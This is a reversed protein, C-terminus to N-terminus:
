IFESSIVIGSLSSFSINGSQHQLNISKPIKPTSKMLFQWNGSGLVEISISLRDSWSYNESNPILKVVFPLFHPESPLTQIHRGKGGLAFALLGRWPCSQALMSCSFQNGGWERSKVGLVQSFCLRNAEGREQVQNVTPNIQNLTTRREHGARSCRHRPHQLM